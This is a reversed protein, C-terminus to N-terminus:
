ESVGDSTQESLDAPTAEIMAIHQRRLAAIRRAKEAKAKNYIATVSLTKQGSIPRVDAEGADGIETIGGHRFSTFTLEKPLGAKDCIKRHVTSM